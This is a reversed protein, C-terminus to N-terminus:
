KLNGVQRHRGAGVSYADAGPGAHDWQNDSQKNWTPALRFWISGIFLVVVAITLSSFMMGALIAGALISVFTWFRHQNM